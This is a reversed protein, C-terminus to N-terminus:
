MKPIRQGCKGCFGKDAPIMNHCNPCEIKTTKEGTKSTYTVNRIPTIKRPESNSKSFKKRVFILTALVLIIVIASILIIYARSEEKEIKLEQEAYEIEQVQKKVDSADVEVTSGDSLTVTEKEELEYPLAKSGLTINALDGEIIFNEEDLKKSYYFAEDGIVEVSEPIIITELKCSAFANNGIKKLTSPLIVTKQECGFFMNDGISEIGEELTVNTAARNWASQSASTDYNVGEGTGKTFTIDEIWFPLATLSCSIPATVKKLANTGSFSLDKLTEVTDSLIVERLSACGYFCSKPITTLVENESGDFISIESYALVGEGMSEVDKGLYFDNVEMKEFLNEGLYTVGDGIYVDYKGEIENYFPSKSHTSLETYDYTAGEGAILMSKESSFYYANVNMGIEITKDAQETEFIKDKVTVEEANATLGFASFGIMITALALVRKLKM